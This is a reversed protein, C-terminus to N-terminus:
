GRRGKKPASGRAARAKAQARVLAEGARRTALAYDVAQKKAYLLEKAASLYMADAHSLKKELATEREAARQRAVVVPDKFGRCDCGAVMCTALHSSSGHSTARHGCQCVPFTLRNIHAILAIEDPASGDHWEQLVLVRRTITTVPEGKPDLDTVKDVATMELRIM